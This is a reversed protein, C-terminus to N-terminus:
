IYTDRWTVTAQTTPDIGSIATLRIQQSGAEIAWWRTTTYDILHRRSDTALGNYRVTRARLDLELYDGANVTLAPLSITQGTGLHTIAPGTIPGYIRVTPYALGQGANTVITTGDVPAAPYTRDFTLDYARGPATGTGSPRVIVQHLDASELVASPVIWQATINQRSVRLDRAVFPAAVASGRVTAIADPHGGPLNRLTMTSRHRPHLYGRLAQVQEWTADKARVQCTIPRDGLHESQDLIGDQDVKPQTITRVAGYGLDLAVIGFVSGCGITLPDAGSRALELTIDAAQDSM